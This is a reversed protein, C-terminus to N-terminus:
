KKRLYNPWLLYWYYCYLGWWVDVEDEKIKDSLKPEFDNVFCVFQGIFVYIALMAYIYFFISHDMDELFNLALLGPIGTIFLSAILQSKQSIPM